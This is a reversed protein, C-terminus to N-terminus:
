GLDIKREGTCTIARGNWSNASSLFGAQVILSLPQCALRRWCRAQPEARELQLRALMLAARALHPREREIRLFLEDGTPLRIATGAAWGLGAPWLLERYIPDVALQDDTYIDHERLFGSHGSAIARRARLGRTYFDGAVFARMGAQLSASATWTIVQRNATFLFGGGRTPAKPSNTSSEQGISPPSRASM